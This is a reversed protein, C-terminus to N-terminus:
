GKDEVGHSDMGTVFRYHLVLTLYNGGNEMAFEHWASSLSDLRLTRENEISLIVARALKM